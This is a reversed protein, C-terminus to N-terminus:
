PPISILSNLDAEAVLAAKNKIERFEVWERESEFLNQFISINDFNKVIEAFISTGQHSMETHMTISDKVSLDRM